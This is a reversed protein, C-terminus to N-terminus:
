KEHEMVVIFVDQKCIRRIGFAMYAAVSRQDADHLLCILATPLIALQDFALPQAHTLSNQPFRLTGAPSRVGTAKAVRYAVLAMRLEVLSLEVRNGTTDITVDARKYHPTRADLILKLDRLPGAMPRDDGQALVRAM